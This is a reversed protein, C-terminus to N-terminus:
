LKPKKQIPAMKALAKLFGGLVPMSLVKSDLWADDELSPTIAVVGQAIVVLGGLSALIVGIWIGVDGPLGKLVSLIVEEMGPAEQAFAVASVLLTMIMSLLLAIYKKVSNSRGM